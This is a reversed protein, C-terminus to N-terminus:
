KVGLWQALLGANAYSTFLASYANFRTTVENVQNNYFDNEATLVDLLSRTSLQRWQEFFDRRVQDTAKVLRHYQASQDLMSKMTHVSSRVKASLDIKEEDIKEKAAEARLAAAEEQANASGGRFIGWSVNMYTQWSEEYAGHNLPITKTVVWNLKPLNGAKVAKAQELASLAQNKAQIITPHRGIARMLKDTDDIRIGWAPETPLGTFSTLGTLKRLAIEADHVKVDANDRAAEAQLLRAQAQTLESVRGSDVKSIDGIMNVLRQMREVFANSIKYIQKQKALEALQSCVQYATDELQADYYAEAAKATFEKSHITKDNYGWDYVPTTMNVNFGNTLNEKNVREGSGFQVPNSQLGVDIQPLRQGRAQDTDAKAANVSTRAERIQPTYNKATLAMKALYQKVVAAPASVTSGTGSMRDGPDPLTFYPVDNEPQSGTFSQSRSEALVLGSCASGVALVLAAARNLNMKNKEM